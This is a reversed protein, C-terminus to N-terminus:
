AKLKLLNYKPHHILSTWDLSYAHTYTCQTSDHVALPLDAVPPHPIQHRPSIGASAM